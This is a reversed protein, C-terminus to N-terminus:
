VALATEAAQEPTINAENVQQWNHPYITEALAGSFAGLWEKSDPIAFVRSVFGAPIDPPTTLKRAM